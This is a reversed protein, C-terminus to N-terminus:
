RTALEERVARVIEAPLPDRNSRTVHWLRVGPRRKVEAILGGGSLAVTAVVPTRSALLTRVAAVFSASLCEMRGIEDVLYLQVDPDPALLRAAVADIAAVDVGYRGVRPGGSFRVSAIVREEGDFTRLRFGEREGARRMEETWFGGLRLDSLQRALERIVTTKGVGPPGTVLM